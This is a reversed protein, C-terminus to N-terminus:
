NEAKCKGKSHTSPATPPVTSPDIDPLLPTTTASLPRSTRNPQLYTCATFKVHTSLLPFPALPHREVANEEEDLTGLVALARSMSAPQSRHTLPTFMATRTAPPLSVSSPGAANVELEAQPGTAIAGGPHSSRPQSRPYKRRKPAPLSM